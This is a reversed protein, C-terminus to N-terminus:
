FTATQQQHFGSFARRNVRALWLKAQSTPHAAESAVHDAHLREAEPQSCNMVMVMKCSCLGSKTDANYTLTHM